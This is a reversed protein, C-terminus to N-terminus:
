EGVRVLTGAGVNISYSALYPRTTDPVVRSAQLAHNPHIPVVRTPFDIPRTSTSYTLPPSFAITLFSDNRALALDPHNKILHLDADAIV